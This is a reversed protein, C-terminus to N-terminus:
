LIYGYFRGHLGAHPVAVAFLIAVELQRCQRAPPQMAIPVDGHLLNHDALLYETDTLIRPM